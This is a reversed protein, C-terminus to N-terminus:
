KVSIIIFAEKLNTKNASAFTDTGERWKVTLKDSIRM